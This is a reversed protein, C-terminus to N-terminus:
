RRSNHTTCFAATRSTPPTLLTPPRCRLASHPVRSEAHQTQYTHLLALSPALVRPREIHHVPIHHVPLSITGPPARAVVVLVCCEGHKRVLSFVQADEAKTWPPEKSAAAKSKRKSPLPLTARRREAVIKAHKPGTLHTHASTCWQGDKMSLVVGCGLKDGVDVCHWGDGRIGKSMDPAGLAIGRAHAQSQRHKQANISSKLL